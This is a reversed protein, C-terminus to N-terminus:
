QLAGQELLFIERLLDRWTAYQAELTGELTIVAGESRLVVPQSESELAEALELLAQEQIRYSRYASYSAQMRSFEGDGPGVSRLAAVSEYHDLWNTQEVAAKRWLDYTPGARELLIVLQEDMADCFLYEQNKIRQVRALMPDDSSPARKLTLVPSEFDLYSAFFDPALDRAYVIDAISILRSREAVSRSLWVDRMRNSVVHFIQQLASLNDSPDDQRYALRLRFWEEGTVDSVAVDLALDRGDSAVIVTRINVPALASATPVVRVVGWHDSSVLVERFLGPLLRSELKRVTMYQATEGAEPDIDFVVVNIDLAPRLPGGARSLSEQPATPAALEAAAEGEIETTTSRTLVPGCAVMSICSLLLWLTILPMRLEDAM